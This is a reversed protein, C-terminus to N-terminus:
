RLVPWPQEGFLEKANSGHEIEGMARDYWGDSRLRSATALPHPALAGAANSDASASHLSTRTKMESRPLDLRINAFPVLPPSPSFHPLYGPLTAPSNAEGAVVTHLAQSANRASGLNPRMGIYSGPSSRFSPPSSLPQTRTLASLPFAPPPTVWIDSSSGGSRFVDDAVASSRRAFKPLVGLASHSIAAVDGSGLDLPRSKGDFGVPLSNRRKYSPGHGLRVPSDLRELAVKEAMYNDQEVGLAPSARSNTNREWLKALMKTKEMVPSFDLLSKANRRDGSPPSGLVEDLVSPSENNHPYRRFLEMRVDRAFDKSGKGRLLATQAKSFLTYPTYVFTPVNSFTTGYDPIPAATPASAEGASIISHFLIMQAPLTSDDDSSPMEIIESSLQAKGLMDPLDKLALCMGDIAIFLSTQFAALDSASKLEPDSLDEGDSYISLQRMHLSDNHALAETFALDRIADMTKGMSAALWSRVLPTTEDTDPLRYAPIQHRSFGYVLADLEGQGANASKAALLGVYFGGPQVVPKAGRKAYVKLEKLLGSSENRDMGMKHALVPGLFRTESFRFGKSIYAEVTDNGVGTIERVLVLMVGERTVMMGPTSPPSQIGDDTHRLGKEYDNSAVAAEPLNLGITITKDFLLGINLYSLGLEHALLFTCELLRNRFSASGTSKRAARGTMFAYSPQQSVLKDLRSSVAKKPSASLGLAQAAIRDAFPELISWDWSLSYIWQFTSQRTDM